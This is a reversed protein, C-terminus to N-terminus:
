SLFPSSDTFRHLADRHRMRHAMRAFGHAERRRDAGIPPRGECRGAIKGTREAYGAAGDYVRLLGDLLSGRQHRHLDRLFDGLCRLRCCFFSSPRRPFDKGKLGDPYDFEEEAREGQARGRIGTAGSPSTSRPDRARPGLFVSLLWHQYDQLFFFRMRVGTTM